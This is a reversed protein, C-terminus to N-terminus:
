LVYPAVPINCDGLIAATLLVMLSGTKAVPTAVALCATQHMSVKAAQARTCVQFWQVRGSLCLAPSCAQQLFLIKKDPALTHLHSPGFGAMTECVYQGFEDADGDYELQSANGPALLSGAAQMLAEGTAAMVSNYLSTDEQVDWLCTSLFFVM